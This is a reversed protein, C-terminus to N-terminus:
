DPDAMPMDTMEDARERYRYLAIAGILALVAGGAVSILETIQRGPFYATLLPLHVMASAAGILTHRFKSDSLLILSILPPLVLFEAMAVALIVFVAAGGAAYQPILGSTESLAGLAPAGAGLLAGLFLGAALRLGLSGPRRTLIESGAFLVIVAILSSAFRGIHGLNVGTPSTGLLLSILSYSAYIAFSFGALGALGAAIVPASIGMNKGSPVAASVPVKREAFVRAPVLIYVHGLMMLIGASMFVQNWQLVASVYVAFLSSVFAGANIFGFFRSMGADLFKERGRYFSGLLTFSSSGYLGMGAFCLLGSVALAVPHDVAFIFYGTALMAGGWVFAKRRDYFLDVLLGGPIQSFVLAATIVGFYLFYTQTDGGDFARATLYAILGNRATYFAFREFFRAIGFKGSAQPHPGYQGSASRADIVEDADVPASTM